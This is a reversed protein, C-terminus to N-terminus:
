AADLANGKILDSIKIEVNQLRAALIGAGYASSISSFTWKIDTFNFLLEDNLSQRFFDNRIVSGNGALVIHKETYEIEDTLSIIYNALAHTAEQIVSLAIENGKQAIQIIFEAFNAIEFVSEINDSLHELAAQFNDENIYQLLGEMIEELDEDGIVSTENIALNYIAQKGIWYGSGIDGLDHGKGAKRITKGNHDRYICIIGTGVTVLIGFDGPCNIEYAAEADNIIITQRAINLYELRRYVLDRGDQNSAGAVGFGIANIDAPNIKAEKCLKLIITQMRDVAMEGYIALNSGKEFARALTLGDATFLIGRTTSAGGDIGIIYFDSPKNM